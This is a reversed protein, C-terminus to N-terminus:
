TVRFIRKVTTISVMIYGKEGLFVAVRGLVIGCSGEYYAIDGRQGRAGPLSKGFKKTLTKYLGGEGITKLAEEGSEMSDYKDRFEEMYDVGTIAEVAGACFTTCDHVGVDFEKDQVSLVYANLRPPWDEYRM